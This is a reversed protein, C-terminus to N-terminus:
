IEPRGVIDALTPEVKQVSEIYHYATLGTSVLDAEDVEWKASHQGIWDDVDTLMQQVREKLFADFGPLEAAPLGRDAIVSRQLRKGEPAQRMNFELTQALNALTNGFYELAQPSM